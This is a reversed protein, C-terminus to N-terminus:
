NSPIWLHIRFEHAIGKNALSIHLNCNNVSLKDDDGYAIYCKQGLEEKSPLNDIYSQTSQKLILSITVKMSDSNAYRFATEFM